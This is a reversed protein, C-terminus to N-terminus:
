EEEDLDSLDVEVEVPNPGDVFRDHLSDGTRAKEQQYCDPCLPWNPVSVCGCFYCSTFECPAEHAQPDVVQALPKPSFLSM